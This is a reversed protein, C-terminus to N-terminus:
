LFASGAAENVNIATIWEIIEYVGGFMWM